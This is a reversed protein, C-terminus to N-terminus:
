QTVETEKRVMNGAEDRVYGGHIIKAIWESRDSRTLVGDKIEFVDGTWFVRIPDGGRLQCDISVLNINLLKAPGFKGQLRNFLEVLKQFADSMRGGVYLFLLGDLNGLDADVL